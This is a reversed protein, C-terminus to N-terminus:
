NKNKKATQKLNIAKDGGNRQKRNAKGEEQKEKKKNQM